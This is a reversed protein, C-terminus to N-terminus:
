VRIGHKKVCSEPEVRLNYQGPALAVFEYHGTADTQATRTLGTGVSTISVKAGVVALGKADVVDGEISATGVQGWAAGHALLLGLALLACVRVRLRYTKV